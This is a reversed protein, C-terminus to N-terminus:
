TFFFEFHKSNNKNLNRKDKLHKLQM